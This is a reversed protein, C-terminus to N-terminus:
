GQDGSSGPDNLPMREKHACSPYTSCGLFRGYPGTREVMRGVYCEACVRQESGCESCRVQTAGAVRHMFGSCCKLCAEDKYSCLPYNECGWFRGYRGDRLALKATVCAPCDPADKPANGFTTVDYGDRLLETVFASPRGSTAVLFAGQKARTLAVYFLRREEAHEFPEARALVLDLLPDDQAASPFGHRGAQLGVIVVWDAELGKSGHVTMFKM